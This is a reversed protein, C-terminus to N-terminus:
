EVYGYFIMMILLYVMPLGGIFPCNEMAINFLWITFSPWHRYIISLSLWHSSVNHYTKGLNPDIIPLWWNTTEQKLPHTEPSRPIAQILSFYQPNNLVISQDPQHNQFMAKIVKWINPIIM